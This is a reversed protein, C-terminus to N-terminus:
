SAYGPQKDAEGAGDERGPVGDTQFKFNLLLKGNELESCEVHRVFPDSAEINAEAVCRDVTPMPKVHVGSDGNPMALTVIMVIIKPEM